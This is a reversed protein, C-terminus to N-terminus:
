SFFRLGRKSSGLPAKGCADRAMSRLARAIPSDAMVLPVATNHSRRVAAYDNPVKWAVPVGVAKTVHEEDIEHRRADFRNVVLKVKDAGFRQMHSVYRQANRLSPVDAQTVIYITEALEMLLGTSKGLNPGTDVVVYAFQEKMLYLLKTLDGNEFAAPGEYEEPGAMLALGSDHKALMGALLERDLRKSNKVIDLLTFRPKIGLLLSSEGLEMDLDVLATEAESEHRLALAFNAAITTVGTGGKAGAFVLLKGTRKLGNGEALRAAARSFAESVTRSTLPVKLFERAGAWMCRMLLDSDESASYVMVTSGPGKKCIHQVVALCLDPDSDLDLLAVDWDDVGAKLQRVASYDKLEAVITAQQQTLEALVAKRREEDPGVLITKLNKVGGL